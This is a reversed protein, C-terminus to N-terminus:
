REEPPDVSFLDRQRDLEKKSLEKVRAFAKAAEARRGLSQLMTGQLFFAERLNPDVETARQVFKIGEPSKSKQWLLKGLQYNARGHRPRLTTAKRLLAEAETRMEPNLALAAGLTYAAEFSNPQAAYEARWEKIADETRRQRWFVSGIALRLQPLEPNLKRAQELAALAEDSRGEQVLLQGMALQAEASDRRALLPELVARAEAAKNQRLMATSLGLM